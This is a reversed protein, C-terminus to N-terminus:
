RADLIKGPQAYGTMELYGVGRLSTGARTGNADIAGEWYSPGFAGTMEQAQLPTTVEFAIQLMPISVRWRIPYAAGTQASVWKEAEPTMVFDHSSLFRSKGHADVFSGSSFSDIGGDQRRLRYLMLDSGDQFQVSLWDWGSETAAMAGTFFEHDMWASGEVQYAKGGADISGTALLRTLSYYHSAHGLGAAKQSVGNQGQVVPPKTPVLKLSLGFDQAVGRLDEQHEDIHAQWNGNWVLGAQDNAAATGASTAGAIGPGSRNLREQHYFRRGDIDSLALHAMWVDHVYWPDVNPSPSPARSVGQRFFTLEFGFRHGDRARVNGTYYWWETQYDEHNFYDQPFQFRYGPLALNYDQASATAFFLLLCTLLSPIWRSKM